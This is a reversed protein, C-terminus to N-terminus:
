KERETGRTTTQCLKLRKKKPRAADVKLKM